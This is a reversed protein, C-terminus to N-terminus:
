RDEKRTRQLINEMVKPLYFRDHITIEDWVNQSFDFFVVYKCQKEFAEEQKIKLYAREVGTIEAVDDLIDPDLIFYDGWAAPQDWKLACSVCYDGAKVVKARGCSRCPNLKLDM